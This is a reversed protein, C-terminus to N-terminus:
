AAEGTELVPGVPAAPYGSASLARCWASPDASDGEYFVVFRDKASCPALGQVEPFVFLEWRVNAFSAADDLGHITLEYANM